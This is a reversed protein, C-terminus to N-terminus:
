IHMPWQLETTNDTEAAIDHNKKLKTALMTMMVITVIIITVIIFNYFMIFNYCFQNGTHSLPSLFLLRSSNGPFRCCIMFWLDHFMLMVFWLCIQLLYCIVFWPIMMIVEDLRDVVYQTEDYILLEPVQVNIMRIPPSSSSSSSSYVM